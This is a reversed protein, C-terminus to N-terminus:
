LLFTSKKQEIDRTKRSFYVNVGIVVRLEISLKLYNENWKRIYLYLINHLICIIRLVPAKLKKHFSSSMRRSPRIIIPHPLYLNGMLDASNHINASLLEASFVSLEYVVMLIDFIEGNIKIIM